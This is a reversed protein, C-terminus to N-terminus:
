PKPETLDAKDNAHYLDGKGEPNPWQIFDVAAKGTYGGLDGAIATRSLWRALSEGMQWGQYPTAADVETEYTITLKVKM